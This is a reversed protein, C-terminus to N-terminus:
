SAIPFLHLIDVKGTPFPYGEMNMVGLLSGATVIAIDPADECFYKLSAVVEPIDQVEDLFVLTKGPKIEQGSLASLGLLLRSVDKDESFLTKVAQNLYCNIYVMNEFENNGFEKLIYTKGVQRAGYLMLPKRTPSNKWNILQNYITRQM